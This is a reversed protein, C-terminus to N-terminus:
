GSAGNTDAAPGDAKSKKRKLRQLTTQVTAPTTDLADAIERANAGTTALLAILDMQKLTGASKIQGVLLRNTIKLQTIVDGVSGEPDRRV